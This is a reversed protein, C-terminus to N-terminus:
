ALGGRRRLLWELGFCTLLLLFVLPIDWVEVQVNLTDMKRTSKLREFLNEATAPRYYHGGGAAAIQALLAQNLRTDRMEVVADSVLFSRTALPAPTATQSPAIELHYIGPTPATFEAIFEGPRAIDASMPLDAIAEDPDTVKLWAVTQPVPRHAEDYIRARITVRDGSSIHRPKVFIAVPAPTDATLWRLMQRWFREHSTDEHPKLMQWRWTTATMVAMTRGRGYRQHALVPLVHGQNTLAPHVMLVTAGPKARGTVNIGQLVPMEKWLQRNVTDEVDLRLMTSRWGEDTLRPAFLRRTPHDGTRTESRLAPPLDNTHVLAVPLLDEVPTGIYGTDFATSGGLMLFGGGRHSVFAHTLALQDETFFDPSVDGFIVADFAFLAAETDPYGDALELPSEINQRLFKQPGTMLYTKLRIARDNEVARRLFKYENRPHGEIYLINARKTAKEILFPLRNNATNIEDQQAAIRATYVRPGELDPILHIRHQQPHGDPGLVIKKAAVVSDGSEILLETDLGAYGHSMVTIQLEFLAGEVAKGNTSVRSILIEKEAQDSGVGIVHVPINRTSLLGASLLPDEDANDAGDTVLVLAAQPLGQLTESVEQLAQSLQTRAGQFTVDAPGTIPRVGSDFAFVRVTFEKRLRDVLGAEGYLLEMAVDGRSQSQAMDPLSMSRSTDVLINLHNDRPSTSSTTLVPKLLCFLLLAVVATRLLILISKRRFTTQATTRRYLIVVAM